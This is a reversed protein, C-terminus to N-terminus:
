RRELPRRRSGRRSAPEPWSAHWRSATAPECPADAAKLDAAVGLSGTRFAKPLALSRASSPQEGVDVAQSGLAPRARESQTSLPRM